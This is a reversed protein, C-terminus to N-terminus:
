TTLLAQKTNTQTPKTQTKQGKLCHQLLIDKLYMRVKVLKGLSINGVTSIGSAIHLVMQQRIANGSKLGM